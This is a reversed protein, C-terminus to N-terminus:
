RGASCRAISYMGGLSWGVCLLGNGGSSCYNLSLPSQMGARGPPVVLPISYSASGSGVGHEGATTDVASELV